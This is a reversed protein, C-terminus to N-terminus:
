LIRKNNLEDILKKNNLVLSDRFKNVVEIETQKGEIDVGYLPTSIGNKNQNTRKLSEIINQGCFTYKEVDFLSVVLVHNILWNYEQSDADIKLNGAAEEYVKNIPLCPNELLVIMGWKNEDDIETDKKEFFNYQYPFKEKVHKYVQQVYEAVRRIEKNIFEDDLQRIEKMPVLSKSDMLLFEGDKCCMIDLTRCENKRFFYKQEKIVEDYINSISLIYYLYEELVEKGVNERLKNNNETLRYLLSSTVSRDILHPLPCYLKNHELVFPFSYSPRVCFMYDNINNAYKDILNCYQERTISLNKVVTKYKENLIYNLVYSKDFKKVSCLIHMFFGVTLFDYYDTKFKDKFIQSMNIRENKFTFIYNYRFYKYIYYEQIDFEILGYASIFYDGFKSCHKYEEMKPVIYGRIANIIENFVKINKGNFEYNNYEKAKIAFMVFTELEWPLPVNKPKDLETIGTPTMLVQSLSSCIQMKADFSFRKLILPIRSYDM